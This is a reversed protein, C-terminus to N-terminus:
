DDQETKIVEGTAANLKIDWKTGDDATIDLKYEYRGDDRDLDRDTITGPKLSLAKEELSELSQITGQEVLKAAEKRNIDDDAFVAASGLGLFAACSLAILKKM